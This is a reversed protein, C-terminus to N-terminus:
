RTLVMMVQALQWEGFPGGGDRASLEILPDLRRGGVLQATEGGREVVHRHLQQLLPPGQLFRVVPEPLLELLQDVELAVGVVDQARQGIADHRDVEVAADDRQVRRGLLQRAEEAALRGAAVAGLEEGVRGLDAIEQGVRQGAM